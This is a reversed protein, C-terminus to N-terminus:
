DGIAKPKIHQKLSNVAENTIPKSYFAIVEPYTEAKVQDATDISSTFM